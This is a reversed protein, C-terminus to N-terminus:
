QATDFKGAASIAGYSDKQAFVAYHDIKTNPTIAINKIETKGDWQGLQDLSTVANRYTVTRGRNEGSPIAQTHENRIAAVWLTYNGSKIEPLTIELSAKGSSKITIPAVTQARELARKIDGSRSGVFEESGNIIMQPTYVRGNGKYSAYARQRDTAFEKSLTDKWHLHNWYTVHFGLAIVNPNESLTALNRDAPPCSSCSQSTFLEIVVPKNIATTDLTGFQAHLARGWFALLALVISFLLM